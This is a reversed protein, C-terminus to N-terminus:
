VPELASEQPYFTPFHRPGYQDCKISPLDYSPHLLGKQLRPIDGILQMIPKNQAQAWSMEEALGKSEQWGILPLILLFDCRDFFTKDFPLWTEHCGEKDHPMYMKTRAVAPVPAFVHCDHLLLYAQACAGAEVRSQRVGLDEHWFPQGLYALTKRVNM